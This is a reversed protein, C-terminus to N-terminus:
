RCEAIMKITPLPEALSPYKNAENIKRCAFDCAGYFKWIKGSTDSCMIMTPEALSTEANYRRYQIEFVSDTEHAIHSDQTHRM